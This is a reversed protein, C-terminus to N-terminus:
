AVREELVDISQQLDLALYNSETELKSFADAYEGLLAAATQVNAPLMGGAPGLERSVEDLARQLALSLRQVLRYGQMEEDYINRLATAVQKDRATSDIGFLLLLRGLHLATAQQELKAVHQAIVHCHGRMAELSRSVQAAKEKHAILHDNFRAPQRDLDSGATTFRFHTLIASAAAVATSTNRLEACMAALDNGIEPYKLKLYDKGDRVAQAVTRIHEIGEAVDKLADTVERITGM